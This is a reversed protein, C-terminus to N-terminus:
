KLLLQLLFPCKRPLELVFRHRHSMGHLLLASRHAVLYLFPEAQCITCQLFRRLLRLRNQVLRRGGDGRLGVLARHVGRPQFVALRLIEPEHGFHVLQRQLQVPCGFLLTRELPCVRAQLLLQSLGELLKPLRPVNLICGFDLLHRQRREM